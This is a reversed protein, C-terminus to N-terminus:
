RAGEDSWGAPQAAAEGRPHAIVDVYPAFEGLGSRRLLAQHRLLYAQLEPDLGQVAPMPQSSVLPGRQNIAVTQAPAQFRPRLDNETLPSPASLRATVADIRAVADGSVTADDPPLALLAALAVSAAVAGGAAWRLVRASMAPRPASEADLAAAVRAAFDGPMPQVANRRLCASALQWRSWTDRLADDHALRRLLFRARDPPLEGDLLASLEAELTDTTDTM